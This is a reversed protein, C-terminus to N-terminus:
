IIDLYKLLMCTSNQLHQHSSSCKAPCVQHLWVVKQWESKNTARNDRYPPMSHHQEVRSKYYITCQLHICLALTM